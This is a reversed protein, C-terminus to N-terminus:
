DTPIGAAFSRYGCNPDYGFRIVITRTALFVEDISIKAYVNPELAFSCIDGQGSNHMSELVIVDGVSAVITTDATYGTVPASTISEFTGPVKQLGVQPVQAGFSIVRRASHVLVRNSEDIDFVVDFGGFGSVAIPGRAILSLANPYGPPTGSLAYVTVTDTLTPETAQLEIPDRCAGLGVVTFLMAILALRFKM